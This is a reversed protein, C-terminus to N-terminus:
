LEYLESIRIPDPIGKAFFITELHKIKNELIRRRRIADPNELITVSYCLLKNEEILLDIKSNTANVIELIQDIKSNSLQSKSSSM